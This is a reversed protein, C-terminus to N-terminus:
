ELAEKTQQLANRAEEPTNPKAIQKDIEDISQKLRMETEKAVSEEKLAERIGHTLWTRYVSSVIYSYEDPSMKQHELANAHAIRIENWMRIGKMAGSFGKNQESLKQFETEYQKYIGYMEKRVSLFRQLQSEAIVGDAPATFPYDKRLHATKKGYESEETGAINEFSGREKNFWQRVFHFRVGVALVTGVMVVVCGILVVKIGTSM